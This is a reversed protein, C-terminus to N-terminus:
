ERQAAVDPRPAAWDLRNALGLLFVTGYLNIGSAWGSALISGLEM